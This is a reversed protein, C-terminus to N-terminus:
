SQRLDKGLLPKSQVVRSAYKCIKPPSYPPTQTVQLTRLTILSGSRSSTYWSVESSLPYPCTKPNEKRSDQSVVQSVDKPVVPSM